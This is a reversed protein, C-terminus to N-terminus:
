DRQKKFQEIAEKVENSDMTSFSVRRGLWDETIIYVLYTNNSFTSTNNLNSISNVQESVKYVDIKYSTDCSYLLLCIIMTLIIKM